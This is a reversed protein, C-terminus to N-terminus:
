VKTIAENHTVSLVSSYLQPCRETESAGTEGRYPSPYVLHDIREGERAVM